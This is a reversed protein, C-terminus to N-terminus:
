KAACRPSTLCPTPRALRLLSTKHLLYCGACVFATHQRDDARCALKGTLQECYVCPWLWYSPHIERYLRRLKANSPASLGQQIAQLEDEQTALLEFQM